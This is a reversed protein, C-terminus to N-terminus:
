KSKSLVNYAETLRSITEEKGLMYALTFPDPSKDKGSLAVRMPWLVGGRGEKDAFPMIAKKIAETNWDVEESMAKVLLVISELRAATKTADSEGKWMLKEQVVLPKEFFYHLEGSEVM